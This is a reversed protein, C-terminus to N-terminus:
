PSNDKGATQGNEYIYTGDSSTSDARQTCASQGRTCSLPSKTSKSFVSLFDASEDQRRFMHSDLSLSDQCYLSNNEGDSHFSLKKTSTLGPAVYTTKHIDITAVPKQIICCKNDCRLSMTEEDSKDSAAGDNPSTLTQQEDDKGENEAITDIWQQVYFETDVTQSPLHIEEQSPMSCKETQMTDIEFQGEIVICETDGNVKKYIRPCKKYTEIQKRIIRVLSVYGVADLANMFCNARSVPGKIIDQLLSVARARRSTCGCINDFEKGSYVDREVFIGRLCRPEIEDVIHKYSEILAEKVSAADQYREPRSNILFKIVHSMQLKELELQFKELVTEQARLLFDYFRSCIVRRPSSSLIKEILDDTGKIGRLMNLFKRPEIEEQLFGANRKVDTKSIKYEGSGQARSDKLVEIITTLHLRKLEPGFKEMAMRNQELVLLFEKCRTQRPLSSLIKERVDDIGDIDRLMDLFRRPELESQLYSWNRRIDKTTLLCGTKPAPVEMIKRLLKQGQDTSRLEEELLCVEVGVESESMKLIKRLCADAKLEEVTAHKNEALQQNDDKPLCRTAHAKNNLLKQFEKRVSEEFGPFRAFKQLLKDVGPMEKALESFNKVIATKTLKCSCMRTSNTRSPDLLVNIVDVMQLEKLKAYFDHIPSREDNVMFVLFEKCREAKPKQSAIFDTVDDPAKASKLLDIFHNPEIKEKLFCYNEAIADRSIVGDPWQVELRFDILNIGKARLQRYHEITFMHQVIKALQEPSEKWKEFLMMQSRNSLHRLTLRISSFEYAQVESATFEMMEEVINENNGDSGRDVVMQEIERGDGQLSLKFETEKSYGNSTFTMSSHQRVKVAPLMEQETSSSFDMMIESNTLVDCLHPYEEEIVQVFREYETVTKKKIYKILYKLKDPKFQMDQINEHEDFEIVEKELLLDIIHKPDLEDGRVKEFYSLKDQWRDSVDSVLAKSDDRYAFEGTKFNEFLYDCKEKELVDLLKEIFSTDGEPIKRSYRVLCKLLIDSKQGHSRADTIKRRDADNM